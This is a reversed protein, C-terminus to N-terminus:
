LCKRGIPTQDVSRSARGHLRGRLWRASAHPRFKLTRRGSRQRLQRLEQQKRRTDEAREKAAVIETEPIITAGALRQMCLNVMPFIPGRQSCKQVRSPSQDNPEIFVVITYAVRNSNPLKGNPGAHVYLKRPESGLVFPKPVGNNLGLETPFLEDCPNRPPEKPVFFDMVRSDTTPMLAPCKSALGSIIEIDKSYAGLNVGQAALAQRLQEMFASYSIIKLDSYSIGYLASASGAYTAGSVVIAATTILNRMSKM